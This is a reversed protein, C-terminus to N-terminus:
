ALISLYRDKAIQDATHHHSARPRQGVRDGGIVSAHHNRGHTQGIRGRRHFDPDPLHYKQASRRSGAATAGDSTCARSVLVHKEAVFARLTPESSMRPHRRRALSVYQEVWLQQCRISKPMSPFSGMAFDLKGSELWRELHIRELQHVHLRVNPAETLLRNVLPPLLKLLGADVVCFNFTRHSTRPDFALHENRLSAARELIARVPGQLQLAKPTPAMRLAVRVFLPDDFYRRLQALTKSLAPQTVDLEHAARTLSHERLLVDFVQLHHLDPNRNHDHPIIRM